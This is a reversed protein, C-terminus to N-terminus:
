GSPGRSINRRRSAASKTLLEFSLEDTKFSIGNSEGKKAKPGMGAFMKEGVVFIHDSGWKISLEAGPLALLLRTVQDYTM